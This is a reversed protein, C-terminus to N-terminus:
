PSSRAFSGAARGLDAIRASSSWHRRLTRGTAPLRIRTQGSTERRGWSPEQGHSDVRDLCVGGGAESAEAASALDDIDMDFKIKALPLLCLAKLFDALVEFVLLPEVEGQIVLWIRKFCTM